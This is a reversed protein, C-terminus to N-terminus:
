GALVANSDMTAETIIHGIGMLQTGVINRQIFTLVATIVTCQIQTHRISLLGAINHNGGVTIAAVIHIQIIDAIHIHLIDVNHATVGADTHHVNICRGLMQAKCVAADGMAKVVLHDPLCIILVDVILRLDAVAINVRHEILLLTPKRSFAAQNCVPVDTCNFTNCHTVAHITRPNVMVMQLIHGM